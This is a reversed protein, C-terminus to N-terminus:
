LLRALIPITVVSLVTTLVTMKEVFESPQNFDRYVMTLMSAVPMGSVITIIGLLFDNSILMRCIFYILTPLVLLKIISYIWAIKDGVVDQWDYKTLSSGIIMMALPTTTNGIMSIPEMLITPLQFGVLYCLIAGVSSVTGVNIMKKWEISEQIRYYGYTYISVNFMAMFVSLYLLASSGFIAHIVPIGMFGMNSYVLVLEYQTEKIRFIRNICRAVIPMFVFFLIASVVTILLLSYDDTRDSTTVSSIILAPNAFNVVYNSIHREGQHTIVGLKNAVFGTMILLLLIIMQEFVM